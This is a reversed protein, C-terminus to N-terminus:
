GIYFYSPDKPALAIGLAHPRSRGDMQFIHVRDELRFITRKLNSIVFKLEGDTLFCEYVSKQGGTSYGKLFERVRRLRRQSTIDYAILYLTREM